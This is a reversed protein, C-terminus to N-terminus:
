DIHNSKHLISFDLIFHWISLTYNVLNLLGFIHRVQKRRAEEMELQLMRNEEEKARVQDSIEDVQM